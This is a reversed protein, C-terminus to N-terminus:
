VRPELGLGARPRPAPAVETDGGPAPNVKTCVLLATHELQEMVQVM